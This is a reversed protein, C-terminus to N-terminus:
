VRETAAIGPQNVGVFGTSRDVNAMFVIPTRADNSISIVYLSPYATACIFLYSLPQKTIGTSVVCWDVLREDISQSRAQM